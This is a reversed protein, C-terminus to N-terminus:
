ARAAQLAICLAIFHPQVEIAGPNLPLATSIDATSPFRPACPRHSGQKHRSSSVYRSGLLTECFLGARRSASCCWLATRLCPTGSASQAQPCRQPPPPEPARAIATCFSRQFPRSLSALSCRPLPARRPGDLRAHVWAEGTWFFMRQSHRREPRANNLRALLPQANYTTRHSRTGAHTTATEQLRTGLLPRVYYCARRAGQPRGPECAATFATGAGTAHACTSVRFQRRASSSINVPRYRHRTPQASYSPAPSRSSRPQCLQWM